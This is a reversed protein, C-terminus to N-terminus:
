PIRVWPEDAAPRFALDFRDTPYTARLQDRYARARDAQTRGCWMARVSDDQFMVGWRPPKQRRKPPLEVVLGEARLRELLTQGNLGTAWELRAAIIADRGQAPTM